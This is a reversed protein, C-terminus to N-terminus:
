FREPRAAKNEALTKRAHCRKCLPQWNPRSWFLRQDGGHPQIHDVETARIEHGREAACARCFPHARLFAARAKRWAPGYGLASSSPRPPRVVAAQCTACRGGRYVLRQQCIRCPRPSANPM